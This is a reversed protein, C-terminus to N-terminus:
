MKLRTVAPTFSLDKVENENKNDNNM